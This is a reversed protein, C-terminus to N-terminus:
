TKNGNELKGHKNKTRGATVTVDTRVTEKSAQKGAYINIQVNKKQSKVNSIQPNLLFPVWRIEAIEILQKFVFLYNRVSLFALFFEQYSKWKDSINPTKRRVEGRNGSAINKM